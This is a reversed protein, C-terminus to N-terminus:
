EEHCSRHHNSLVQPGLCPPPQGARAEAGDPGRTIDHGQQVGRGADFPEGVGVRVQFFQGTGSAEAAVHEVRPLRPEGDDAAPLEGILGGTALLVQEGGQGDGGAGGEAPHGPM